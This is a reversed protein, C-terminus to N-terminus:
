RALRPYGAAIWESRWCTREWSAMDCECFGQQATQVVWPWMALAGRGCPCPRRHSEEGSVEPFAERLRRMAHKHKVCAVEYQEEGYYYEDDGEAPPEFMEVRAAMGAAEAAERSNFLHAPRHDSPVCPPKAPNWFRGDPEGGAGGPRGRYGPIEPHLEAAFFAHTFDGADLYKQAYDVPPDTTVTAIPVSPPPAAPPPSPSPEAAAEDADEAAPVTSQAAARSPPSLNLTAAALLLQESSTGRKKHERLEKGLAGKEGLSNGIRKGIARAEKPSLMPKGIAAALVYGTAEERDLRYGLRSKIEDKKMSAYGRQKWLEEIAEKVNVLLANILPAQPHDKPLARPRGHGEPFMMQAQLLLAAM